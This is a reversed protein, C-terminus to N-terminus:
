ITREYSEPSKINQWMKLAEEYKQLHEAYLAKCIITARNSRFHPEELFNYLESQLLM